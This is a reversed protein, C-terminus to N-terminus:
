REALKELIKDLKKSQEKQEEKIEDVDRRIAQQNTEIKVIAKEVDTQKAAQAKMANKEDAMATQLAEVDYKLNIGGVLITTMVVIIQWYRIFFNSADDQTM